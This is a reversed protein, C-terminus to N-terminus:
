RATRPADWGAPRTVTLTLDARLDPQDFCCFVSPASTPYCHGFTYTAGDAPDAFRSLGRGDRSYAPSRRSRSCTSGALGPLHLRGGSLALAPDLNLGNCTVRNVASARLDAFTAAGPERCRFRIEVRSRVREPDAALDLFVAYSEVDLLAARERAEAETCGGLVSAAAM